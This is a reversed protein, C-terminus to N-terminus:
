AMSGSSFPLALRTVSATSNAPQSLGSTAQSVRRRLSSYRPMSAAPNFFRLSCSGRSAFSAENYATPRAQRAPERLRAARLTGHRRRRCPLPAAASRAVVAAPDALLGRPQHRPMVELARFSQSSSRQSLGSLAAGCTTEATIPGFGARRGAASM